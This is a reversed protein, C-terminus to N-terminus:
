VLISILLLSVFLIISLSVIVLDSALISLRLSLVSSYYSSSSSYQTFPFVMSVSQSTAHMSGSDPGTDQQMPCFGFKYFTM